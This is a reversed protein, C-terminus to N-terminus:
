MCRVGDIGIPSGFATTKSNAMYTEPITARCLGLSTMLRMLRVVM